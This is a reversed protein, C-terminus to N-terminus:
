LRKYCSFYVMISLLATPVSTFAELHLAVILFIAICLQEFFPIM